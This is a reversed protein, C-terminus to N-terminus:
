YTPCSRCNSHSCCKERKFWKWRSEASGSTKELHSRGREFSLDDQVSWVLSSFVTPSHWCGVRRWLERKDQTSSGCIEVNTALPDHHLRWAEDQDHYILHSDHVEKSASKSPVKGDLRSVDRLALIGLLVATTRSDYHFWSACCKPWMMPRINLSKKSLRSQSMLRRWCIISSSIRTRSDCTWEFTASGIM